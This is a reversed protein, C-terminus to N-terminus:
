QLGAIMAASLWDVGSQWAVVRGVTCDFVAGSTRLFRGPGGAAYLEAKIQKGGWEFGMATSGAPTGEPLAGLCFGRLGTRSPSVEVYCAAFQELVAIGFPHVDEGDIVGDIDVGILGPAGASVLVGVGGGGRKNAAAIAQALTGATTPDDVKGPGGAPSQPAKNGLKWWYWRRQAFQELHRLNETQTPTFAGEEYEPIKM